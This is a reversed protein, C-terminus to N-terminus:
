LVQLVEIAPNREVAMETIVDRHCRQPNREVCLVAIRQESALAVLRELAAGAGNALLARMRTRGEQGDSNRFSDRNDAPNGLEQEHIYVIGVHDLARALGRRSFGPRRSIPNLRVDVLVSVRAGILRDVLGDLTIGEYGVSYIRGGM